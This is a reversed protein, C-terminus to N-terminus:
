MRVNDVINIQICLYDIAIHVVQFRVNIKYIDRNLRVLTYIRSFLIIAKVRVNMNMLM